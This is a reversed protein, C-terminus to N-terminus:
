TIAQALEAKFHSFISSIQAVVLKTALLLLIAAALSYVVLQDYNARMNCSTRISLVFEDHLHM